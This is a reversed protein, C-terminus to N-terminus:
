AGRPRWLDIVRARRIGRDHSALPLHHRRATAVIVRDAPDGHFREPLRDLELVVEVDLPLVTAAPASTALRLWSEFPIPPVFRGKAALMQAEWLSIASVHPPRTRAVADLAQRELALLRPDGTLWWIWVHTDLLVSM